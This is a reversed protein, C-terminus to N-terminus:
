GIAGLDRMQKKADASEPFESNIDLAKEFAGIAELPRGLKRYVLGLRYFASPNTAGGNVMGDYAELAEGYLGLRYYILGLADKMDHDEPNVAAGKLAYRLAGELDNKKESLVLALKWYSAVTLPSEEMVRRYEGAARDVQGSAAYLDALRLRLKASPARELAKEYSEAAMAPKGMSDYMEGLGAHATSFGPHAALARMYEVRAADKRGRRDEARALASLILPNSSGAEKALEVTQGYLGARNLMVAFSVRAPDAEDTFFEEPRFSRAALDPFVEGSKMYEAKAGKFDRMSTLVNGLAMHAVPDLPDEEVARRALRAAADLDGKLHMAVAANLYAETIGPATENLSRFHASAADYDKQITKILGLFYSTLFFEPNTQRLILFSAYAEGTKGTVLYATGLILYAGTARNDTELAKKAYGVASDYDGEALCIRGLNLYDPETAPLRELYSRARELLGQSLYITAMHRIVSPDEKLGLSSDLYTLAKHFRRKTIYYRGMAGYIDSAFEPDAKRASEAQALAERERDLALYAIALIYRATLDGPDEDILGTEIEVVRDYDSKKLFDLAESHRQANRTFEPPVPIAPAPSHGALLVTATLAAALLPWLLRRM